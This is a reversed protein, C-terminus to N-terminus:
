VGAPSANLHYVPDFDPHNRDRDSLKVPEFPWKINFSPDNWRVGREHEKSYTESVFYIIESEETLTLFGHAFGRPVYLM